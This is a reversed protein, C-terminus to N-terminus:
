KGFLAFIDAIPSWIKPYQRFIAQRIEEAYVLEEELNFVIEGFTAGGIAISGNALGGAAIQSALAVGGISYIGIAIGGVAFVGVCCRAFLFTACEGKTVALRAVERESPPKKNCGRWPPPLM